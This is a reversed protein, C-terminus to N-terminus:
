GDSSESVETGVAPLEVPEDPEAHTGSPSAAGIGECAAVPGGLVAVVLTKDDESVSALRQSGLLRRIQEDAEQREQLGEALRFLPGFFPEHLHYGESDRTLFSLQCGDSFACLADVPEATLVELHREWRSSTLPTVINVFDSEAPASLLCLREGRRGVVAGDGVHAVEVGEPTALAVMLTTGLHRLDLGQTSAAQELALRAQRVAQEVLSPTQGLSGAASSLFDVAAQVALQAGLDSNPASGLGDAVALAVGGGELLACAHADQCPLGSQEHGPGM